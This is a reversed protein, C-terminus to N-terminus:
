EGDCDEIGSGISAGQYLKIRGGGEFMAGNIEKAYKLLFLIM